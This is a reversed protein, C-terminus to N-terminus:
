AITLPECKNEDFSEGQMIGHVYSDGLLEWEQGCPRLMLPTRCGRILFVRDGEQSSRPGLGIYGSKTVFIRRCLTRTRADVFVDPRFTVAQKPTTQRRYMNHFAYIPVWSEIRKAANALSKLGSPGLLNIAASLQFHIYRTRSSMRDRGFWPGQLSCSPIYVRRYTEAAQQMTYDGHFHDLFITRIFADFVDEGNPYKRGSVLSDSISLWNMFLSATQVASAPTSVKPSDPECGEKLFIDALDGVKTVEDFCFGSLELTNGKFVAHASTTSVSAADFHFLYVSDITRYSLSSALDYASWDPVWSPLESMRRDLPQRPVGLIDLNRTQAIINRAAAIYAERPTCHYNAVIGHCYQGTLEEYLGLFAYVKDRADSAQAVRHNELLALLNLNTSSAGAKHYSLILQVTQAYSSVSPLIDPRFSLFVPSLALIGVSFELWPLSADSSHLYAQRALVVEQIIWTRSFWPTEVLQKICRWADDAVDPLGYEGLLRHRIMYPFNLDWGFKACLQNLSKLIALAKALPRDPPDNGLWIRVTSANRYIWGMLPVQHEKEHLDEQNICIADVWLVRQTDGLRFSSLAAALNATVSVPIGDCLVTSRITPPGWCYSLADYDYNGDIKAHFLECKIPDLENGPLLRLLRFEPQERNTSLQRYEAKSLNATPSSPPLSQKRQVPPARPNLRVKWRRTPRPTKPLGAADYKDEDAWPPVDTPTEPPLRIAGECRRVEALVSPLDLM